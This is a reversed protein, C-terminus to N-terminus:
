LSVEFKTLEENFSGYKYFVNLRNSLMRNRLNWSRHHRMIGMVSSLSSRLHETTVHSLDSELKNLSKNVRCMTKNAVYTRWPKIYAGLYEVGYMVDCIMTKGQNIELSMENHLFSRIQPILMRLLDRNGSVIYFDDVYRGYHKVGMVRKIWQDFVNMYVNSYLQSTLNGIPLGHGPKSYFLSKSEPLGLWDEPWGICRCGDLPNHMIILESLYDIFGFDLIDAWCVTTTNNVRHYMMKSLSSRCISLLRERSISMFYGKIDMKLVYCRRTYNLSEKRIHRELRRIGYLTGRGNICSYSDQIFTRVFLPYTYNYYLHHVIRDRFEAAVIERKKPDSITFCTTPRPKYRREYLEDCLNKLQWYMDAEFQQQYRKNRKHRRATLYAKHLDKYLQQRDLTYAQM